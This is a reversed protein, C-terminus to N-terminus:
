QQPQLEELKVPKCVACWEHGTSIAEYLTHESGHKMTQCQGSTHYYRSGNSYYVIVDKALEMREAETLEDGPQVTPAATVTALPVYQSAGCDMCATMGTQVADDLTMLTYKGQFFECEDSTHFCNQEDVWVVNEASLLEAAPAGCTRCNRLGADVSSQLTYAVASSMNTCTEAMHYWRGNSTHYATAQAVPKLTVSPTPVPTPEPTPEATPVATPEATANVTPMVPVLTESPNQTGNVTAVPAATEATEPSTTPAATPAVTPTATPELTIEPTKLPEPTMLLDESQYIYDTAGCAECPSLMEQYCQELTKLAYDGTFNECGLQTHYIGAEDAWLQLEEMTLADASPVACNSCQLYGDMVAEGLTTEEAGRMGVCTNAMHYFRGNTTVYM